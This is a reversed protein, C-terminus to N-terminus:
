PRRRERVEEHGSLVGNKRLRDRLHQRARHLRISAANPTIGLTVAIEAPALEEWAWLRILEAEVPRLEAVATRVAEARPDEAPEPVAEPPPDLVSVKAALRHQRRVGREANALCHRAVGYIWPLPEDPIEEFRRWCVMLTDGLVDDASVVGGARRALYRRVPEMVERVMAEFRAEVSGPTPEDM